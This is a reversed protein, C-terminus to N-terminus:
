KSKKGKLRDAAWRFFHPVTDYLYANEEFACVLEEITGPRYGDPDMELAYGDLKGRAAERFFKLGDGNQETIRLLIEEANRLDEQKYYLVCLPLMMQADERGGYRKSLGAAGRVDEMYAYLHMLTYRVGLNDGKCLKLLDEGERIAKGMRGLRILARMNEFRARMYPRTEFILWFDGKGNKFFGGEEMQRRGERLIPQLLEYFQDFGKAQLSAKMLMADLNAPDLELAKEVCKLRDKKTKAEDALELYDWADEPEPIGPKQREGYERMFREALQHAEESSSPQHEDLYAQLERFLRETEASM